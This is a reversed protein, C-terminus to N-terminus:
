DFVVSEFLFEGIIRHANPNIHLDQDWFIKETAQQLPKRLDITTINKTLLWDSFQSTIHTTIQIEDTNLDFM